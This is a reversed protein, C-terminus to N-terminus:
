FSPPPLLPWHPLAPFWSGNGGSGDMQLPAMSPVTRSSAPFAGPHPGPQARHALMRGEGSAGGAVSGAGVRRSEETGGGPLESTLKTSLLSRILM